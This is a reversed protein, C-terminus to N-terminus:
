ESSARPRGKSWFRSLWTLVVAVVLSQVFVFGTLIVWFGGGTQILFENYLFTDVLLTAIVAPGAVLLAERPVVGWEALALIVGTAAFISLTLRGLPLEPIGNTPLATSPTM